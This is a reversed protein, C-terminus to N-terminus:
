LQEMTGTKGCGTCRTPPYNLNTREADCESCKYIIQRHAKWRRRDRNEFSMQHAKLPPLGACHLAYEVLDWDCELDRDFDYGEMRRKWETDDLDQKECLEWWILCTVKARYFNEEIARNIRRFWWTDSRGQLSKKWAKDWQILDMQKKTPKPPVHNFPNPNGRSLAVTYRNRKNQTSVADKVSKLARRYEKSGMEYVIPFDDM